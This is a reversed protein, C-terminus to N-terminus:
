QNKRWWIQMTFNNTDGILFNTMLMEVVGLSEVQALEYPANLATGLANGWNTLTMVSRGKDSAFTVNQEGHAHRFAITLPLTLATGSYEPGLEIDVECVMNAPIILNYTAILSRGNLRIKSTM